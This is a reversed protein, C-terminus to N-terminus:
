APLRVPPPGGLPNAGERRAARRLLREQDDAERVADPDHVHMAGSQAALRCRLAGMELHRKVRARTHYNTGCVPCTSGVVLQGTTRRVGHSFRAHALVARRSAFCRGCQACMWDEDTQERELDDAEPQTAAAKQLYQRILATWQSPWQLWFQEWAGPDLHPDPLEDLKTALTAKIERLGDLLAQRWESGAHGRLLARLYPPAFRSARAAYRARAAVLRANLPPAGLDVRVEANTRRREGPLPERHAGAARRLPKMTAAELARAQSGTLPEWAGAGHLIKTELCAEAVHRRAHTPLKPDALLKGLTALTGNAARARAMIERQQSLGAATKVGLHRYCTVVRLHNGGGTPLLTAPAVEDKPCAALVAAAASKGLGSLQLVAETKGAALNIVFGFESAVEMLSRTFLPLTMLLDMPFEAELMVVLDDMYSPLGMEEVSAAGAQFLGPGELLFTPMLGADRVVERLRKQFVTFALAFVLDALPDGPRTGLLNSVIRRGGQVTFGTHRHWDALLRRWPAAVALGQIVSVNAEILTDLDCAVKESLGALRFAEKRAEGTMCAGIALEQVVSYFAGKLDTFLAACSRRRQKASKMCLRVAHAPFDTGGHQVAGQQLDEAAERLTPAVEGRAVKAVAKGPHSGALVGRSNSAGLPMGAKRPVPVMIGLRWSTPVQSWQTAAAVEALRRLYAPGSAKMAELPVMDHGMMRGPKMGAIANALRQMWDTVSLRDEQVVTPLNFTDAGMREAYVEPELILARGLFEEVFRKEWMEELHHQTQVTAGREDRVIPVVQQARPHKATLAGRVLHWLKAGAGPRCDDAAEEARRALWEAKDRKAAEAAARAARRLAAELRAVELHRRRTKEHGIRRELDAAMEPKGERGRRGALTMVVALRWAQLWRRAEAGRRGRVAGFFRKRAEAHARVQAWTEPSMWPKRPAPMHKPACEALIEQTLATLAREADEAQWHAPIAPVKEWAARLAEQVNDLKLAARNFRMGQADRLRPASAAGGLELLLGALRHDERTGIALLADKDTYAEFCADAWALPVLVYDGRVWAGTLPHRWTTGGGLFTAPAVLELDVLALHMAEGNVTEQEREAAGVHVSQVSGLRANADIMALLPLGDPNLGKVLQMLESWWLPEDSPAHAALWLCDQRGIPARVLLWRPSSALRWIADRAIGLKRHFWLEVGYCGAPSAAASIMLYEGVLKVSDSRGRAEQVGVASVGRAALQDALQERRWSSRGDEEQAPRLTLVNATALHLTVRARAEGAEGRPMPAPTRVREPMAHAGSLCSPARDLVDAWFLEGRLSLVHSELTPVRGPRAIVDWPLGETANGSMGLTAALDALENGPIGAHGPVRVCAFRREQAVAASLFRLKTALDENASVRGAFNVVDVTHSADLKIYLDAAEVPGMFEWVMKLVVLAASHEAVPATPSHAGLFGPAGPDVVVPGWLAGLWHHKLRGDQGPLIALFIAAWGARTPRQPWCVSMEAAGDTYVEVLEIPAEDPASPWRDWATRVEPVVRRSVELEPRSPHRRVDGLHM